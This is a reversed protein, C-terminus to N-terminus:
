LGELQKMVSNIMNLDFRNDKCRINNEMDIWWDGTWEREAVGKIKEIEKLINDPGLGGAFGVPKDLAPRIWKKPTMGRGGSADVLLAHNYRDVKTLHLNSKKHQTIITKNDYMNCFYELENVTLKGNIQIRNVFQTLDYLEGDFLQKRAATGCVHLAIRNGKAHIQRALELCIARSPYKNNSDNASKGNKGVRYLLGIECNDPLGMLPTHIDVGTFTVNIM